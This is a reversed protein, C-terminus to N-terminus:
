KNSRRGDWWMETYGGYEAEGSDEDIVLLAVGPVTDLTGKAVRGCEPCVFPSFKM